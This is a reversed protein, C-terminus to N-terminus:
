DGGRARPDLADRIGDGLFGFCVVLTTIALSPWLVQYWQSDLYGVGAAVMTGLSPMPPQMGLGLLSVTAESIIARRADGTIWIVALGLVNPLLHRVLIRPPSAGIARAAEVFQQERLSLVQARMVRMLGPWGVISLTASILVLRGLGGFAADASAGFLSMVLVILLIGPFALLLDTLRSLLGDVRGGFYGALVGFTVGLAGTLAPALLAVLFSVRLGYLLRALEDRGLDDTGLWNQRSPWANLNSYDQVYPDHPAVVPAALALIGLLVLVWVSVFAM